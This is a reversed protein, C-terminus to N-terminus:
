LREWPLLCFVAQAIGSFPTGLCAPESARGAMVMFVSVRNHTPVPVEIDVELWRWM